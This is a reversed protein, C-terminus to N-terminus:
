NKNNIKKCWHKDNITEIKYKPFQYQEASDSGQNQIREREGRVHAAFVSWIYFQPIYYLIYLKRHAMNALRMREVIKSINKM